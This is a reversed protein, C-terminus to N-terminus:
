SSLSTLLYILFHSASLIWRYPWSLVQCIAFIWYIIWRKPSLMFKKITINSHPMILVFQSSCLAVINILLFVISYWLDLSPNFSQLGCNRVNTEPILSLCRYANYFINILTLMKTSVNFSIHLEILDKDLFIELVSNPYLRGFM